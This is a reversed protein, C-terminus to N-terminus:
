GRTLRDWLNDLLRAGYARTASGALTFAGAAFVRAGRLEYYSMQGRNAAPRGNRLEAIVRTGRPSAPHLRDIEIGFTGFSSGNRLGTRRLLWRPAGRLVYPGRLHSGYAVYQVGVLAAEPRGLDRWMGVKHLVDGRREVKWFFNNASLFALNGGLDRYRAVLDFERQTVYEHHGPFVILEYARRLGRASSMRELDSQALYDVVRNTWALWHLFPLDYSRFRLPVGRNLFPRATRAQTRSRDAYWTDASGDGDDDRFNYAQWTLTPMVVAVRNRGLRRPRLVFPAYVVRGGATVRAFYMGSPWDGIRVPLREGRYTVPASVAVGNLEDNRRTAQREPGTRLIQVRVAGAAYVRLLARSGPRYSERAFAAELRRSRRPSGVSALALPPETMHAWLTDLFGRGSSTMARGAVTFAGAAFVRAGVSTEYYTMQAGLGSGFLNPIEALVRTGAPSSRATRDVEIGFRGFLSGRGAHGFLSPVADVDRVRYPAFRRGNAVYQVGILAAEPRGLTRWRAVRRLRTGIRDVRWFFNNASLFMLNGGLNRFTAVVDYERGTVYEHHGPFVILDYAARLARADTLELDRQALFDAERGTAALWRLFPRDYIDFAPPMGSSLQPRGLRVTRRSQHVYWTEGWGDGDADRFNYAQWTYTPMVVAVRHEGLRRPRVLFPAFGVRGDDTTVRAYYVGTPLPGLALPLLRPADRRRWAVTRADSVALAEPGCRFLQITLRRADAAVWLRATEASRYSDRPFAADVGLVRIVPTTQRRRPDGNRPGYITRGSRDRVDLYTVYTRSPVGSPPAWVFTNRGAPLRRTTGYVARARRETRAVVFGVTAPRTLRFRITARDRFGDGNPSITSLLRRDGLFPHGGNGVSVATLEASARPGSRTAGLLDSVLRCRQEGLCDSATADLGELGVLRDAGQPARQVLAISALLALCLVATKM